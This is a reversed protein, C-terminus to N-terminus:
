SHPNHSIGQSIGHPFERERTLNYVIGAFLWFYTFPVDLTLADDTYQTLLVAFLMATFGSAMIMKRSKLHDRYAKLAFRLLSFLTALYALLGVIGTEVMVLLYCNHPNTLHFLREKGIQLFSGLGHGFLPRRLFEQFYFRWATFRYALNNNSSTLDYLRRIISPISIGVVLFVIIIFIFMPLIFGKSLMRPVLMATFVAIALILGFWGGRYYTLVLSILLLSMLVLLSLRTKLSPVYM